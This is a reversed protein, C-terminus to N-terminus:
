RSSPSPPSRIFTISLAGTLYAIYEVLKMFILGMLHIPHNLLLKFNRLYHTPCCGKMALSPNKRIFSPLAKGYNYAKLVVRKMSLEGEYHRIEARVKGIRHGAGEIRRGLDFDEGYVLNEDFGGVSGFVERRFFRPMNFTEYGVYLAREIKRCEALFGRAVSVQPIMVADAGKQPCLAVCEEIVKPTMEMDSDMFLLFLGEAKTAGLNKQASREPGKLLVKVNFKEAVKLTGDWSYRDVVIIEVNPYTQDKISQLCLALTEESNFTPVIVSVRPENM